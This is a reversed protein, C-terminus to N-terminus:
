KFEIISIKAILSKAAFAIYKLFLFFFGGAEQSFVWWSAKVSGQVSPDWHEHSFPSKPAWVAAYYKAKNFRM